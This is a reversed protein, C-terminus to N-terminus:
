LEWRFITAFVPGIDQKRTNFLATCTAATERHVLILSDTLTTRTKLATLEIKTFEFGPKSTM